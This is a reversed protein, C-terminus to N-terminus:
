LHLEAPLVRGQMLSARYGRWYWMFQASDYFSLLRNEWCRSPPALQTLLEADDQECNYLLTSVLRPQM